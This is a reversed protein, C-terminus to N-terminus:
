FLSFGSWQAAHKAGQTVILGQGLVNGVLINPAYMRNNSRQGARGVVCERVGIEDELLFPLSKSGEM